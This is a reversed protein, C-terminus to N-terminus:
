SRDDDGAGAMGAKLECGRQALVAKGFANREEVVFAMQRILARRQGLGIQLSGASRIAQHEPWFFEIVVLVDVQDGITGGRDVARRPLYHERRARREVVAMQHQRGARPIPQEINGVGVKIAHTIQPREVVALRQAAQDGGALADDHDAGAEDPQFEGRGRPGLAEFDVHDFESRPHHRARHRGLNGFEKM